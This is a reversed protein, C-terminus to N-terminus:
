ERSAAPPAEEVALYRDAALDELIQEGGAPWVIRLSKVRSEAGLGFHVTKDSSSAYGVSTTVHNYQLRRSATELTLHAGIADRNSGRGRLQVALWHNGGGLLNRLLAPREGIRSLVVDVRGDADFEAFAAGRHLAPRGVSVPEFGGKGNNRLLLNPLRSKRSSYVETNDQVDGGAAFLDKHGDNDFDYVGNGWGSMALSAKGIGSPYTVDAFLMNGLNRFLPFTENALATVFADVKGDNDIDRLDVGMSSLARGDDNYAVGAQVAIERFRGGGENHFLFNPVADNTVFVDLHGDSDVDGLAVGMGKGAHAGIGSPASVDEFVGGGRNRFLQNALGAYHQPHCYTRYGARRDGCFPERVPDWAVYNVIFLDLLGDKDYDLWGGTISWPKPSQGALRARVTIDEFTGDGRNRYLFNRNVGAVFLDPWGDNDFDAAAAGIGYGDGALGSRETVDEFRFGGLNRYLRNWFDPTTKALSPQAAGNVFFIDPKGDKDFDLTALGGVMTEILHKEPTAANRLVVRLGSSDSVDEFAQPHAPLALSGFLCVAAFGHM